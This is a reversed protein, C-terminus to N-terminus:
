YNFLYMGRSFGAGHASVGEADGGPHQAMRAEPRGVADGRCCCLLM